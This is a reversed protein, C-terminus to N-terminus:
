RSGHGGGPGGGHGHQIMAVQVLGHPPEREVRFRFRHRAADEAVLLVTLEDPASDVVSVLMLSGFRAQLERYGAIRAALPRAELESRAVNAALWDRMAAEGGGFAEVWGAAALGAPTDPWGDRLARARAETRSAKADGGAAKTAAPPQAAAVATATAGTLWLVLALTTAATRQRM